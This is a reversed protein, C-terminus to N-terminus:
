VTVTGPTVAAPLQGSGGWSVYGSSDGARPRRRVPLHPGEGPPSLLITFFVLVLLNYFSFLFSLIILLGGVWRLAAIMDRVGMNGPATSDETSLFGLPGLRYHLTVLVLDQELM